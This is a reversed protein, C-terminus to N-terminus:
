HLYLYREQATLQGIERQRAASLLEDFGGCISCPYTEYPFPQDTIVSRSDASFGVAGAFADPITFLPQQSQTDYVNVQQELGSDVTAILQSNPSFAVDDLGGPNGVLTLLPTSSGVRYVTADDDWERALVVLRDNASIAGSEIISMQTAPAPETRISAIVHGSSPKWVFSHGDSDSSLVLTGDPSFAVFFNDSEYNSRATQNGRFISLRRGSAVDWISIAGSPSVIAALEGNPSLVGTLTHGPLMRVLAGGDTRRLQAPVWQSKAQYVSRTVLMMNGARDFEATPIGRGIRIAALRRGTRSNFVILSNNSSSDDTSYAAVPTRPDTPSQLGSGDRDLAAVANHQEAVVAPAHPAPSGTIVGNNWIRAFGDSSWTLIRSGDPSFGAVSVAGSDGALSEVLDGTYPDWVTAHGNQSPIVLSGPLGSSGPGFVPAASASAQYGVARAWPKGLSALRWVYVDGDPLTTSVFSGGPSWAPEVGAIIDSAPATWGSVNWLM